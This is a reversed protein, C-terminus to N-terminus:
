RDVHEWIGTASEEEPITIKGFLKIIRSLLDDDSYSRSAEEASNGGYIGWFIEPLDGGDPFRYSIVSGRARHGETHIALPVNDYLCREGDVYVILLEHGYMTEKHLEVGPMKSSAIIDPYGDLYLIGCGNSTNFM